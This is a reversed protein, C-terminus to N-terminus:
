DKGGIPLTAEEGKGKLEGRDTRNRTEGDIRIAGKDSQLDPASGNTIGAGPPGTNCGSALGAAMALGALTLRTWRM